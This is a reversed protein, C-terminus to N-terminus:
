KDLCFSGLSAERIDILVRNAAKEIDLEGAKKLFNRAKAVNSLDLQTEPELEEIKYFKGLMGPYLEELLNIGDQAINVHDYAHEGLCNCLALKLAQEESYLKSPIIGPTDLLHLEPNIKIWQQQRTVGAKNEVKAKKSRSLKNILSSKGVNPYGVVMIRVPRNRVGKAKYKDQIPKALEQIEKTLGKIEGKSVNICLPENEFLSKFSKTDALDAKGFVTIIPKNQAWEALNQHASSLPIRADRLEIIIDILKIKDKLEREAKAIHGPYWNFKAGSSESVENAPGQETAKKNKKSNKKAM